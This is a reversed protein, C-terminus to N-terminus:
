PAFCITCGTLANDPLSDIKAYAEVLTDWTALVEGTSLRVLHVRRGYCEGLMARHREDYWREGEADRTLVCGRQSM